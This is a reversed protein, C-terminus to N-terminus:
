LKESFRKVLKFSNPNMSLQGIEMLNLWQSGTMGTMGTMM